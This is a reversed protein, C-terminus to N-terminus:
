MRQSHEVEANSLLMLDTICQPLRTTDSLLNFKTVAASFCMGFSNLVVNRSKQRNLLKHFKKYAESIVSLFARQYVANLTLNVGNDSKSGDNFKWFM